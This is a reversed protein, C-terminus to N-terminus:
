KCESVKWIGIYFNCHLSLHVNLHASDRETFYWSGEGGGVVAGREAAGTRNM